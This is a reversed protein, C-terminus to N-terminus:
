EDADDGGVRIAQAEKGHVEGFTASMDFSGDGHDELTFQPRMRKARQSSERLEDVLSKPSAAKQAEAIRQASISTFLLEAYGKAVQATEPSINGAFLEAMIAVCLENFEEYGAVRNSLLTNRIALRIEEPVQQRLDALASPNDNAM